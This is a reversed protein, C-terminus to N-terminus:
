VVARAADAFAKVQAWVASIDRAAASEGYEVVTKEARQAATVAPDYAITGAMPLGESTALGRIADSVSPNIDWKNICVMAPTRLRRTLEVIRRLDHEGSVTPETVILAVSAATLSAIVPCGIGPAGDVVLYPLGKEEGTKRAETRVLTVLKGSNEAAVHLQAHVLPGYRTESIFWEGCVQEPFDIAQVPCARVCVGCGECSTPDITFTSEGAGRHDHTVAGFRCWALCAGCKICDAQRIQAKHGSAFDARRKVDPKLILYLDAADVDCDALVATGAALTAFSATVSTKGTGGKGSIVVIERM